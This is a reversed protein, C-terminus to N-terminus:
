TRKMFNRFWIGCFIRMNLRFSAHYMYYLEDIERQFKDKDSGLYESYSFIGPAYDPFQDLIAENEQNVVMIRSGILRLKGRLVLPLLHFRDLSLKRFYRGAVSRAPKLYLRLALRAKRQQNMYCDVLTAKVTLWPRIVIFPILMFLLLILAGLRQKLPCTWYGKKVLETLLFEDVIDLAVGEFPDIVYNRYIIKRNIESYCGVYSNGMIISNTIQAKEDILVNDGIIVGPGVASESSLQVSNGFIVPLSVEATKPIVVNRGVIFHTHDGYGPLNYNATEKYVLEMSRIYFDKISDVPFSNILACEASDSEFDHLRHEGILFYRNGPSITGVLAQDPEVAIKEIKNKHYDLWFFGSVLLLSHKKCFAMNKEVVMRPSSDPMIAAFSLNVGYKKGDGLLDYIEKGPNDSVIRIDSIDNLICFDILFELYPKNGFRLLYPDQGPFFNKAWVTNSEPCHIICKMGM